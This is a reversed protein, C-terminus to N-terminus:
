VKRQPPLPSWRTKYGKSLKIRVDQPTLKYEARRVCATKCARNDDGLICNTSVCTQADGNILNFRQRQQQQQRESHGVRSIIMGNAFISWKLLFFTLVFLLRM